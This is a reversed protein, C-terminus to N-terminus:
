RVECMTDLADLAAKFAEKSEAEVLFHAEEGELEIRSQLIKGGAKTIDGRAAEVDGTHEVDYCSVIIKMSTKETKVTLKALRFYSKMCVFLAPIILGPGENVM